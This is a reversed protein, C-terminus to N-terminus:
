ELKMRNLLNGNNDHVYHIIEQQKSLLYMLIGKNDYIFQNSSSFQYPYISVDDIDLYSGEEGGVGFRIYFFAANPHPIYNITQDYWKWYGYQHNTHIENVINHNIDLEILSIQAVGGDHLTYRMKAGILYFFGGHVPIENSQVFQASFADGMGSFLRYNYTGGKIEDPYLWASPEVSNGNRWATEWFDPLNNKNQDQEFEGNWDFHELRIHDIDLYAAEEGGM